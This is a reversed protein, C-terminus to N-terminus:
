IRHFDLISGDGHFKIYFQFSSGGHSAECNRGTNNNGSINLRDVAGWKNQRKVEDIMNRFAAACIDCCFRMKEGEVTDWYEGWTADCLACGRRNNIEM